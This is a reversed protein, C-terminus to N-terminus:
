ALKRENLRVIEASERRHIRNAFRMESNLSRQGAQEEQKRQFGSPWQAFNCFRWDGFDSPNMRSDLYVNTGFKVFNGSPTGSIDNGLIPGISM